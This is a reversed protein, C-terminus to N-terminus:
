SNLSSNNGKTDCVTLLDGVKMRLVRAIHKADDGTIIGGERSITQTFFRPM